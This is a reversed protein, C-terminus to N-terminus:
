GYLFFNPRRQFGLGTPGDSGEPIYAKVLTAVLYAAKGLPLAPLTYTGSPSSPGIIPIGSSPGIEKKLTTVM